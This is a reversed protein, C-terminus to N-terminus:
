RKTKEWMLSVRDVANAIGRETEFSISLDQVSLLESNM